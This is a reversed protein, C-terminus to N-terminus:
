SLRKLARWAWIVPTMCATLVLVGFVTSSNTVLVSEGKVWATISTGKGGFELHRGYVHEIASLIGQVM